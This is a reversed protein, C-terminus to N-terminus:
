ILGSSHSMLPQILIVRLCLPFGISKYGTQSFYTTLVPDTLTGVSHQSFHARYLIVLAVFSHAAGPSAPVLSPCPATNLARAFLLHGSREPHHTVLHPPPRPVLSAVFLGEKVIESEDVEM